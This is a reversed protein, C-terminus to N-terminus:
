GAALEGDDDLSPAHERGDLTELLADRRGDFLREAMRELLPRLSASDVASVAVADREWALRAAERPEIRDVKNM